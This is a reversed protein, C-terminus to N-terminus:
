KGPAIIVAEPFYTRYRRGDRPLLPLKEVAAHASSSTRYSGPVPKVLAVTSSFAKGALFLAVRPTPVVIM